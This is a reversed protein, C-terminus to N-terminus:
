ANALLIDECIAAELQSRASRLYQLDSVRFAVAGIHKITSVSEIGGEPTDYSTQTWLATPRM